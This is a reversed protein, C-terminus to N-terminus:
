ADPRLASHRVRQYHPGQQAVDFIYIRYCLMDRTISSNTGWSCRKGADLRDAGLASAFAVPMGDQISQACNWAQRRHDSSLAAALSERVKGNVANQTVPRGRVCRILPRASGFRGM